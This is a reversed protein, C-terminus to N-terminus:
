NLQEKREGKLLREVDSNMSEKSNIQELLDTSKDKYNQYLNHM